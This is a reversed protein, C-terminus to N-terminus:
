KGASPLDVESTVIGAAYLDSIEDDSMGLFGSLVYHNHEGLLPARFHTDGSKSFRFPATQSRVVGVVPHAIDRFQGYHQLQSDEYIDRNDEVVNAAVGEAQMMAEVEEATHGRSWEAVLRDLADENRKRALLTAFRADEAWEPHGTVRCFRRWEDDNFVAIAVWRDTGMCPYVGHPAARGLRNGNRTMVRGNVSYGMLPAALICLNAEYQSQDIYVGRGTRRQRILASVLAISGTGTSPFDGYAIPMGSPARDPWGALHGLGSMNNTAPGYGLRQSHPGSQGELCTSYYIIDPRVAKVSDYDLGWKKMVGPRFSEAMIHPRWEVLLRKVLGRAEPKDLNLTISYKSANWWMQYGSHDPETIGQYFAGGMRAVDLRLHTEVKVVTAGCDGLWRLALPATAATAMDLVRIGSFISQNM